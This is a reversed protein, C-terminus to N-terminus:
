RDEPETPEPLPAGARPTEDSTSAAEAAAGRAIDRLTRLALFTAPGSGLPGSLNGSAADFTWPVWARAKAGADEVPLAKRITEPAVGPLPSEIAGAAIGRLWGLRSAGGSGTSAASGAAPLSLAFARGDAGVGVADGPKAGVTELDLSALPLLPADRRPSVVIAGEPPLSAPAPASGRWQVSEGDGWIWGEWAADGRGHRVVLRLSRETAAARAPTEAALGKLFLGLALPNDCAVALGDQLCVHLSGRASPISIVPRGAIEETRPIGDYRLSLGGALVDGLAARLAKADRTTRFALLVGRADRAGGPLKVPISAVLAEGDAAALLAGAGAVLRDAAGSEEGWARVQADFAARWAAPSGLGADSAARLLAPLDPAAVVRETQAPLADLLMTGTPRAPAADQALAVVPALLLALLVPRPM